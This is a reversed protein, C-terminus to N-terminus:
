KITIGAFRQLDATKVGAGADVTWGTLGAEWGGKGQNKATADQTARLQASYTMKIVGNPTQIIVQTPFKAGPERVSSIKYGPNLAPNALKAMQAEVANGDQFGKKGSIRLALGATDGTLQRTKKDISIQTREGNADDAEAMSVNAVSGSGDGSKASGGTASTQNINISPSFGFSAATGVEGLWKSGETKVQRKGINKIEESVGDTSAAKEWREIDAVRQKAMADFTNNVPANINQDNVRLLQNGYNEFASLGLLNSLSTKVEDMRESTRDTRTKAYIDSSVDIGGVEVNYKSSAKESAASKLSAAIKEADTANASVSTRSGSTTTSAPAPAPTPTPTPEVPGAKKAANIAALKEAMQVAIGATGGIDTGRLASGKGMLKDVEANMQNMYNSRLEADTLPTPRTKGFELTQEVLERSKADMYDANPGRNAEVASAVDQAFQQDRNVIESTQETKGARSRDDKGFMSGLKDYFASKAEQDKFEFGEDTVKLASKPILGAAMKAELDQATAAKRSQQSRRYKINEALNESMGRFALENLTTDNQSTPSFVIQPM